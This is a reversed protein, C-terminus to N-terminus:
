IPQQPAGASQTASVIGDGLKNGIWEMATKGYGTALKIALWVAFVTAILYGFGALFKTLMETNAGSNATPLSVPPQSIAFKTATEDVKLPPASKYYVTDSIEKIAAEPPTIPLRKIHTMNEASIGVAEAMVIVRTGDKNTWTYFPRDSQVIHATNWDAMGTVQLDPYGNNSDPQSAVITAINPAFANIFESGKSKVPSVKLPVLIVITTGIAPMSARLRAEKQARVQRYHVAIDREWGGAAIAADERAIEALLAPDPALASISMPFEGIQFCADYQQGNVRLPFPQYISMLDISSNTSNTLTLPNDEGM